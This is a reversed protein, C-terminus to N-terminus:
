YASLQMDKVSFRLAIAGTLGGNLDSYSLHVTYISMGGKYAVIGRIDRHISLRNVYVWNVFQLRLKVSSIEIAM